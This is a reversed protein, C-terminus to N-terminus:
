RMGALLSAFQFKSSISEPSLLHIFVELLCCLKVAVDARAQGHAVPHRFIHLLVVRSDFSSSSTQMASFLDQLTSAM